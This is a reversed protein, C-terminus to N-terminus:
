DNGDGSNSFFQIAWNNPPERNYNRLCGNLESGNASLADIVIRGTPKCAWYAFPEGVEQYSSGCDWTGSTQEICIRVRVKTGYFGGITTRVLLSDKSCNTNWVTEVPASYTLLHICNNDASASGAIACFLAAALRVRHTHIGTILFM